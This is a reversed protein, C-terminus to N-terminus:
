PHPVPGVGLGGEGRQQGVCRRVPVDRRLEVGALPGEGQHRQGAAVAGAQDPDRALARGPAEGAQRVRSEGGGDLVPGLAEEAGHPDVSGAAEHRHAAEDTSLGTACRRTRIPSAAGVDERRDPRLAQIEAQAVRRREAVGHQRGGAVAAVGSGPRREGAEAAGGGRRPGACGATSARFRLRSVSRSGTSARRPRPSRAMVVIPGSRRTTIRSPTSGRRPAGSSIRAPRRPPGPPRPRLRPARLARGDRAPRGPRPAGNPRGPDPPLLHPASPITGTAPGEAAGPVPTLHRSGADPGRLGHRRPRPARWPRVAGAHVEPRLADRHDPRLARRDGGGAPRPRDPRAFGGALALSARTQAKIAASLARGLVSLTTRTAM